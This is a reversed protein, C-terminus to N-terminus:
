IEEKSLKDLLKELLEKSKERGIEDIFFDLIQEEDMGVGYIDQRLDWLHETKELFFSENLQRVKMIRM